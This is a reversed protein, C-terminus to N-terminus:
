RRVRPPRPGLTSYLAVLRAVTTVLFIQGLLAELVVLARALRSLPYIDGFGVTTLTVFSFYLFAAAGRPGGPGSQDAFADPNVAGIALYVYAFVLGLLVYVCLAGSLTQFTVRQHRLVRRLVAPPTSVLLAGLVLYSAPILWSAGTAVQAVVLVLSAVAAVGAARLTHRRVGSTRLGLLMTVAVLPASVVRSWNDQPIVTLTLYELLLVTLLLPYSDQEHLAARVLRAWASGRAEDAGDGDGAAPPVGETDPPQSMADDYASM